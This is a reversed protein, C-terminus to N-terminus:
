YSTWALNSRVVLISDQGPLDPAGRFNKINDFRGGLGPAKCIDRRRDCGAYATLTDNVAVAFPM